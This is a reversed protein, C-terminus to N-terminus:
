SGTSEHASNNYLIHRFNNPKIQGVIAMNGTHMINAGDGDLCYINRSPKSIAVGLAIGSAHGMSGVCLFDKEHPIKLTDRTEYVERSL